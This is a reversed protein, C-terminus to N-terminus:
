IDLVFVVIKFVLALIIFDAVFLKKFVVLIEVVRQLYLTYLDTFLPQSGLEKKSVTLCKRLCNSDGLM